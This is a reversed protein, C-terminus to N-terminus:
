PAGFTVNGAILATIPQAALNEAERRLYAAMGTLQAPTAAATGYLNRALAANLAADDGELGDEYARIRGYFAQAMRKVQRGVSLDGTGIERLSRDFDVFMTDFFRQSLATAAENEGKLRRLYLFAHLCIVEFRGDLTDPVGLTTFFAPRRSQEVVNRYAHEAADRVPNRRFPM